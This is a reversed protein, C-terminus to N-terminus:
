IHKKTYKGLSTDGICVTGDENIKGFFGGKYIPLIM